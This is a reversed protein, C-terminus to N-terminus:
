SSGRSESPSRPATLQESHIGKGPNLFRRIEPWCLFLLAGLLMGFTQRNLQAWIVEAPLLGQQTAQPRFTYAPGALTFLMWGVTIGSLSLWLATQNKWSALVAALLASGFIMWFCINQDSSHIVQSSQWDHQHTSWYEYSQFWGLGTGLFICLYILIKSRFM